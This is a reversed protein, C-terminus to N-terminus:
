SWRSEAFRELIDRERETLTGTGDRRVKELIARLERRQVLTLGPRREARSPRYHRSTPDVRGLVDFFDHLQHPHRIFYYGAIAGGLHSAEGGANSGATYLVYLAMGVMFWAFYRTEIPIIFFLLIVQRPALYAAAMVVGFVGASAGILPTTPLNFLLFPVHQGPMMTDVVFGALNLVMYMIAGFIGALLYFALFRKRGLYEEVFPAFMWLMFMNIVVHWITTHTHLFQFGIFRWVELRFFGRVTSFHLYAELTHMPAVDAWGIRPGNRFAYIAVKPQDQGVIRDGFVLQDRAYQVDAAIQMPGMLVPRVPLLGDVVFVLGCAIIIWWTMSVRAMRGRLGARPDSASRLIPLRPDSPTM